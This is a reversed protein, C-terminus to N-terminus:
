KKWYRQSFGTGHNKGASVAEETLLAAVGSSLGNLTSSPETSGESVYEIAYLRALLAGRDPDTEEAARVLM